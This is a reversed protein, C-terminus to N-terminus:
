PVWNTTGPTDSGSESSCGDGGAAHTGDVCGRHPHGGYIAHYWVESLQQVVRDLEVVPVEILGMGLWNYAFWDLMGGLGYAVVEPDLPRHPVPAPTRALNRMIRSIFRMRLEHGLRSFTKDFTSVQYLNRFIDPYRSWIELYGKNTAEVREYPDTASSRELTSCEMESVALRVLQEFVDEKNKLYYYFTGRSVSCGDTIDEVTAEVFGQAAFAARAADLVRQRTDSGRVPWPERRKAQRAAAAAPSRLKTGDKM